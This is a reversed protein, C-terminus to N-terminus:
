SMSGENGVEQVCSEEAFTRSVCVRSHRCVLKSERCHPRANSTLLPIIFLTKFLRIRTATRLMYVSLEPWILWCVCHHLFAVDECPSTRHEGEDDKNFMKATGFDTIQIHMDEGLLINEPKLDRCSLLM